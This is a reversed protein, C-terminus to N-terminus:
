SGGPVAIAYGLSIAARALDGDAAVLVTDDGEIREYSALHVADSGRLVLSAAYAGAREALAQDLDLAEVQALVYRM